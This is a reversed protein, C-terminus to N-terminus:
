LLVGHPPRPSRSCGTLLGPASSSQPKPLVKCLSRPNCSRGTLLGPPTSAFWLQPRLYWSMNLFTRSTKMRLTTPNEIYKVVSPETQKKPTKSHLQVHFAMHRHALWLAPSLCPCWLLTKTENMKNPKNQQKLCLRAIRGLSAKSSPIIVRGRKRLYWFVCTYWWVQGM